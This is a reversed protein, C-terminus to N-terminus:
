MSQIPIYVIAWGGCQNCVRFQYIYLQGGGVNTVYESNTYIYVIAVGWM